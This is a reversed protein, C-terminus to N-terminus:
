GAMDYCLIRKEYLFCSTVHYLKLSAYGALPRLGLFYIKTSWGLSVGLCWGGIRVLGTLFWGSICVWLLCWVKSICRFVVSGFRVLGFWVSGFRVLGFWVSGFRVLGFWVSGFRVLGFWVSGFRVLGFWVSGFRVLGFWVSGFRVLGWFFLRAGPGGVLRFMEGQVDGRGRPGVFFGAEFRAWGVLWVLMWGVLWGGVFRFAVDWGCGEGSSGERMWVWGADADRRGPRQQRHTLDLIRSQVTAM